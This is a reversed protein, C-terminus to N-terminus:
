KLDKPPKLGPKIWRSGWMDAVIEGGGREEEKVRREREREM